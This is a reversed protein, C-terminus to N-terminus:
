KNQEETFNKKYYPKKYHNVYGLKKQRAKQLNTVEM